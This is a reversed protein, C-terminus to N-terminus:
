TKLLNFKSVDKSQDTMLARKPALVCINVDGLLVNLVVQLM